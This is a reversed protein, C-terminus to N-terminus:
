PRLHAFLLRSLLTTLLLAALGTLAIVSIICAITKAITLPRTTTTFGDSLVAVTALTLFAIAATTLVIYHHGGLTATATLKSAHDLWEGFTYMWIVTALDAAMVFWLIFSSRGTRGARVGPRRSSSSLLAPALYRKTGRSSSRTPGRGARPTRTSRNNGPRTSRRTTARSVVTM